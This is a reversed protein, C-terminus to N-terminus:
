ESEALSPVSTTDGLAESAFLLCAQVDQRNLGDYEDLIEEM